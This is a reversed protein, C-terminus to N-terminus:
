NSPHDRAEFYKDGVPMFLLVSPPAERRSAAAVDAAAASSANDTAAQRLVCQAPLGMNALAKKHIHPCAETSGGKLPGDADVGINVQWIHRTEIRHRRTLL